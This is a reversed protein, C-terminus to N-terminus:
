INKRVGARCAVIDRARLERIIIEKTIKIGAPNKIPIGKGRPRLNSWRYLRESTGQAHHILPQKETMPAANAEKIVTCLPYLNKSTMAAVVYRTAVM